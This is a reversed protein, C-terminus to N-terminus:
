CLNVGQNILNTYNGKRSSMVAIVESPIHLEQIVIFYNVRFDSGFTDVYARYLNNIIHAYRNRNNYWTNWNLVSLKVNMAYDMCYQDFTPGTLNSINKFKMLENYLDKLPLNSKSLEFKTFLFKVFDKVDPMGSTQFLLKFYNSYFEHLPDKFISLFKSKGRKAAMHMLEHLTAECILGDNSFALFKTTNSLAIIIKDETPSYFAITSKKDLDKGFVKFATHKLINKDLFCPIIEGSNVLKTIKPAYRKTETQNSIIKIYKAKLKDSGYLDTGYFSVLKKL